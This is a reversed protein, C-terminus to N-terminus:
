DYLNRTGVDIKRPSGLMETPKKMQFLKIGDNNPLMTPPASNTPTANQYM